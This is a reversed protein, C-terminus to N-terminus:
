VMELRSSLKQLAPLRVFDAMEPFKSEGNGYFILSLDHKGERVTSSACGRTLLCSFM